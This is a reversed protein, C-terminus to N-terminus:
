STVKVVYRPEVIAPTGKESAKFRLVVDQTFEAESNAPAQVVTIPWNQMYAFARQFDGIYWTTASSTAVKVYANSVIDYDGAVPNAAITQTGTASGTTGYRIETANVIRRATMKLATPVLLQRSMPMIPEGTNPDTMADFLLEAAEISSWDALSTSAKINVFPPSSAQYPNIGSAGNRKYTITTSGGTVVEMIAREKRIRLSEGVEAARKLVLGTRDYFIAEKTVPVIVGFKATRPTDVWEETVGATPYREGEGIGEANNGIRSVGPIRESEFETPVTSVLSDSVFAASNWADLMRSYIVQGTINSFDRSSVNAASELLKISGSSHRPNCENVFERGMFAEAIDRISFDSAHLDKSDLAERLHTCTWEGGELEYMRKLENAKIAPM